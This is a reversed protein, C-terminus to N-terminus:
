KKQRIPTIFIRKGNGKRNHGEQPAWWVTKEHAGLFTTNTKGKGWDGGGILGRGGGGGGKGGGGLSGWGCPEKVPLVSHGSGRVPKKKNKKIKNKKKAQVREKRGSGGM